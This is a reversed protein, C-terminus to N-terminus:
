QLRQRPPTIGSPQNIGLKRYIRAISRLAKKATLRVEQTRGFMLLSRYTAISKQFTKEGKKRDDTKVQSLALWRLSTAYLEIVSSCVGYNIQTELKDVAQSFSARAQRKRGLTYLNKGHVFACNALELCSIETSRQQHVEELANVVDSYIMEAHDHAGSEDLQYGYVFLEEATEAIPLEGQIM